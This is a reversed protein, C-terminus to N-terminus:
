EMAQSVNWMDRYLHWAGDEQIWVVIYKGLTENGDADALLFHGVESVTDGKGFVELTTLEIGTAGGDIMSQWFAEIDALGRVEPAGPPLLMANTGYLAAMAGADGLAFAAEFAVNQAEIEGKIDREACAPAAALIALGCVIGLNLVPHRM